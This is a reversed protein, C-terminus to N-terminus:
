YLLFLIDMYCIVKYLKTIRVNSVNSKFIHLCVYVCLKAYLVFEYYQINLQVIFVLSLRIVHPVTYPLCHLSIHMNGNFLQGRLM